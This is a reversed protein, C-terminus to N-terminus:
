ATLAFENVANWPATIQLQLFKGFCCLIAIEDVVFYSDDDIKRFICDYPWLVNGVYDTPWHKFALKNRGWDM